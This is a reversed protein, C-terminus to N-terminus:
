VGISEYGARRLKRYDRHTFNQPESNEDMRVLLVPGVIEEDHFPPPLINENRTFGTVCKLIVVDFDPWQGIFTARGGLLNYIENKEPTIDLNIEQIDGISTHILIAKTMKFKM